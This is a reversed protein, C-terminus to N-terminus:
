TRGGLITKAQNILGVRHRADLNPITSLVSELEVQTDLIYIINKNYYLRQWTNMLFEILTDGYYGSWEIIHPDPWHRTGIWCFSSSSFPVLIALWNDNKNTTITHLMIIKNKIFDEKINPVVNTPDETITYM